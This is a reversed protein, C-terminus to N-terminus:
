HPLASALARGQPTAVTLFVGVSASQVAPAAATAARRRYRAEASLEVRRGLRRGLALFADGSAAFRPDASPDPHVHSAM